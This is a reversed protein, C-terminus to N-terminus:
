EIVQAIFMWVAVALVAISATKVGGGFTAAAGRLALSATTAAPGTVTLASEVGFAGSGGNADFLAKLAVCDATQITAAKARTASANAVNVAVFDIAMGLSPTSSTKSAIVTLSRGTIVISDENLGLFKSFDSKAAADLAAIVSPKVVYAASTKSGNSSDFLSSWNGVLSITLTVNSNTTSLLPPAVTGGSISTTTTINTVTVTVTTTNTSTNTATVNPAPEGLVDRLARIRDNGSDAVLLLSENVLLGIPSSFKASAYMVPGSATKAAQDQFGATSGAITTMVGAASLKRVRHNATDAIFCALSRDFALASPSSLKAATLDSGDTSGNVGNTGAATGIHTVCATGNVFNANNLDCRRIKHNGKDAIWLWTGNVALGQPNNFRATAADTTSDATGASTTGAAPGYVIAAAGSSSIRKIKNNGSDAVLLWDGYLALGTPNKFTMGSATTSAADGSTTIGAAPGAFISVATADGTSSSVTIKKIKNNGSDAVFLDTGNAVIFTPSSFRATNTDGATWDADAATGVAGAVVISAGGLGNSANSGAAFRRVVHSLTDVVYAVGGVMVASSPARLQAETGVSAANATGTTWTGTAPGAISSSAMATTFGTLSVVVTVITGGLSPTGSAIARISQTSTDYGALRFSIGSVTGDLFYRNVSGFQYGVGKTVARTTTTSTVSVSYMYNNGGATAEGIFVRTGSTAATVLFMSNTVSNTVLSTGTTVAYKSVKNAQNGGPQTGGALNVVLLTGTTSTAQNVFFLSGDATWPGAAKVGVLQMDSAATNAANSTADTFVGLVASAESTAGTTLCDTTAGVVCLFTTTGPTAANVKVVVTGCAAWFSTSTSSAALQGITSATCQSPMTGVLLTIAGTNDIKQFSNDGSSYVYLNTSQVVMVTPANLRGTGLAGAVTGSVGDTGAFFAAATTAVVVKWIVHRVNDSCYYDASIKACSHFLPPSTGKFGSISTGTGATFSKFGNADVALAVESVGATPSSADRLVSTLGRFRTASATGVADGATASGWVDNAPTTVVRAAASNTNPFAIRKVKNNGADSIWIATTQAGTEAGANPACANPSSFQLNTAPDNGATASGGGTLTVVDGATGTIGAFVIGNNVAAPPLGTSTIAIALIRHNGTDPVILTDYPGTSSAFRAACIGRVGSMQFTDAALTTSTYDANSAAPGIPTSSPNFGAFEILLSTSPTSGLRIIKKGECVVYLDSNTTGALTIGTPSKCVVSPDTYTSVTGSSIVIKRIKGSGNDTVFLNTDGCAIGWPGDFSAATGIGDVNGAVAETGVFIRAGGSMDIRRIVHRGTDTCYYIAQGNACCQTFAPFALISNDSGVLTTVATPTTSGPSSLTVSRVKRAGNELIYLTSPTAAADGTIGVPGWLRGFAPLAVTGGSADQDGPGITAGAVTASTTSSAKRIRHNGTDAVFLNDAVGAGICDSPANYRQSSAAGEVCGSSTDSAAPGWTTVAGSSATIKRIKNNGTDAVFLNTGDTCIGTPNRFTAVSAAGDADGGFSTASTSPVFASATTDTVRRVRHGGSEVVYLNGGLVVCDTPSSFTAVDLLTGDTSGSTGTGAYTTVTADAATSLKKIKHNGTDAVFLSTGDYCIGQPTLFRALGNAATGDADGTIGVSGAVVQMSKAPINFRRIVHSTPDAFYIDDAGVLAARGPIFAGGGAYTTVQAAVGWESSEFSAPFGPLLLLVTVTVAATAFPPFSLSRRWQQLWATSM